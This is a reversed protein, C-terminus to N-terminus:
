RFGAVELMEGVDDLGVVAADVYEEHVRTAAPHNRQALDGFLVEIVGEVAVDFPVKNM